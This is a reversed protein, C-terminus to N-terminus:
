TALRYHKQRTKQEKCKNLRKRRMREDDGEGEETSAYSETDENESSTGGGRLEDQRKREHNDEQQETGENTTRRLQQRGDAEKTTMPGPRNTGVGQTSTSSEEVKEKKRKVCIKQKAKTWLM